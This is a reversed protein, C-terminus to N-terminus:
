EAVDVLPIAEAALDAGAVAALATLEDTRLVHVCCLM